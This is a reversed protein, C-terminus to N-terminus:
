RAVENGLIDYIKLTTFGSLPLSYSIATSPNFPNPYNQELIFNKINIPNDEEKLSTVTLTDTFYYTLRNSNFYIRRPTNLDSAINSVSVNFVKRWKLGYDETLYLGNKASVYIRGSKNPDSWIQNIRLDNDISQLYDDIIGWTQGTDTSLVLRYKNNIEISAYIINHNNEDIRYSWFFVNSFLTQNFDSGYNGSLYIEYDYGRSYRGFVLSDNSKSFQLDVFTSDYLLQWDIGGNMSRYFYDPGLGNPGYASGYVLGKKNPHFTFDADKLTDMVFWNVGGDTTKLPYNENRYAFGSQSNFPDFAVKSVIQDTLINWTIGRDTSIQVNPAVIVIKNLNDKLFDIDDAQTLYNYTLHWPGDLNTSKFIGKEKGKYYINNANKKIFTTKTDILMWNIGANTSKYIGLYACALILNTDSSDLLFDYFFDFPPLQLILSFSIGGNDSKFLKVRSSAFISNNPNVQVKIIDDNIIDFCFDFTAGSNTSKYLKNEAGIFITSTDFTSIELSTIEKDFAYLKNWSSGNDKTVWLENYNRTAYVIDSNLPNVIVKAWYSDWIKDWIKGQDNTQYFNNETTLYIKNTDKASVAIRYPSQPTYILSTISDNYSKFIINGWSGIYKVNPLTPHIVFKGEDYM